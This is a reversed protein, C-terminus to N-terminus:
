AAPEMVWPDPIRPGRCRARRLETSRAFSATQGLGLAPWVEAFRHRRRSQRIERPLAASPAPLSLNPDCRHVMGALLMTDIIEAHSLDVGAAILHKVDFAANHIWLKSRWVPLLAADTVPIVDADIVVM